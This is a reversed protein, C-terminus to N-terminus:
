YCSPDSDKRSYELMARTWARTWNYRQDIRALAACSQCVVKNAIGYTGDMYKKIYFTTQVAFCLRCCFTRYRSRPECNVDVYNFAETNDMKTFRYRNFDVRLRFTKRCLEHLLSLHISPHRDPPPYYCTVQATSSCRFCHAQLYRRVNQRLVRSMNVCVSGPFFFSNNLTSVQM